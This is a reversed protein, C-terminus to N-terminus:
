FRTTLEPHRKVFNEAWRPGVRSVNRDTCLRGAMERVDELRPQFGRLDLDLIRDLLVKEELDTLKRLNASIDRQSDQGARRRRLTTRPVSYTTAAYSVTLAPDNKFRELLLSLAVKM